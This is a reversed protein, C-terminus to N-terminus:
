GFGRDNSIDTILHDLFPITKHPQWKASVYFLFTCLISEQNYTCQKYWGHSSAQKSTGYSINDNMFRHASNQMDQM